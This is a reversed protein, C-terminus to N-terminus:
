EKKCISIVPVQITTDKITALGDKAINIITLKSYSALINSVEEEGLAVFLVGEKGNGLVAPLKDMSVRLSITHLVPIMSSEVFINCIKNKDFEM